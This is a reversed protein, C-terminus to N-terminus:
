RLASVLLSALLEGGPGVDEGLDSSDSGRKPHSARWDAYREAWAKHAIWAENKLGDDWYIWGGCAQSLWRLAEREQENLPFAGPEDHLAAWLRYELDILWGACYTDESIQSMISRLVYQQPTM